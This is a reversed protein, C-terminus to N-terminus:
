GFGNTKIWGIGQSIVMASEDVIQQISVIQGDGIEGLGQLDIRIVAICEM